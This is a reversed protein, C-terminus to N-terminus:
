LVELDNMKIDRTFVGSYLYSGSAIYIARFILHMVPM